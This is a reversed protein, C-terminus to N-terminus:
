NSPLGRELIRLWNGGMIGRIDEDSFGADALAGAFQQLDAATDIEQPTAEMGFGGDFDTGIGCHRMDGALDCIHKMHEIVTAFTVAKKDAGNQRWQHKLFQNYFVAGIVGDRKVLARIMEDSLQRDTPVFKRANSHSAIVTGEFLDLAQFFSEEAMHSTDLILGLRSMERMLQKGLDTLPGPKGTGGSYRTQSWAPGIIRVGADYWKATDKPTVIPDAGEMLMVIGLKPETANLVRKLDDQDAILSIRPDGALMAYYALQEEAHAEAQEAATYTKGVSSSGEPAAYITGFVIRVNGKLFDALGVTASGQKPNGAEQKRMEHASLRPDRGFVLANYAIDEHADVVLYPAAM